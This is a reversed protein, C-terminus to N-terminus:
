VQGQPDRQRLRRTDHVTSPWQQRTRMLALEDQFSAAMVVVEPKIDHLIPLAADSEKLPHRIPILEVPQGALQASELVGRAVQWGFSGKGSYFVCIRHSEPSNSLLCPPLSRLYDSAPSAIGVLYHWGHGFIEDSSGGYNWLAKEYEEAIEAVGM